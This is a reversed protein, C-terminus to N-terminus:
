GHPRAFFLDKAKVDKDVTNFDQRMVVTRMITVAHCESAAEQVIRQKENM